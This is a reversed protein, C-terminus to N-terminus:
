EDGEAAEVVTKEEVGKERRFNGRGADFGCVDAFPCYDCKGFYPSPAIIGEAIEECGKRAILLAYKLYANMTREDVLGAKKSASIKDGALAFKMDLTQSYGDEDLGTAGIMEDTFLTKGQLSYVGKEDSTFKDGVPFYYAGGLKEGGKILANGYLYLQLNNGTYFEADKDHIQGTKYDIIRIYEGCKDVRDIKGVIRKEGYATKLKIAGYEAGGGFSAETEAPRFGSGFVQKSVAFAVRRAERGLLSFVVDYRDAAIYRSIIFESKRNELIENVIADSDNRSLAEDKGIAFRARLTRVYDELVSHLFSGLENSRVEGTERESLKLGYKMFCSFPCGFYSELLSASVTDGGAILEGGVPLVTAIERESEFLLKEALTASEPASERAASIFSVEHTANDRAGDLFERVNEMFEKVAPRASSYTVSSYARAFKGDKAAAREFSARSGAEIPAGNKTFMAVFQDIMHGRPAPKGDPAAASRSLYLKETFSALAAGVNERERKNVIKIKPEVICNFRELRALDRDNLVATDSKTFPVDGSLGAAFLIKHEIYKCDKYNGVYVADVLQPLISVECASIGSLLVAKFERATMEARGIIREVSDLVGSIKEFAQETFAADNVAGLSRLKVSIEACADLTGCKEFLAKIASIYDGACRCARVCSAIRARENEFINFDEEDGYRNDANLERNLGSKMIKSTLANRLCFNEFRDSVTKDRQFYPNKELAIFDETRYRGYLLEVYAEALKAVPHLSLPRTDDLFYPIDRDGFVRELVPAYDRVNSIALAIDRYRKGGIVERRIIRAIHEMEDDIDVADYVFVKDTETKPASFCAPDFLLDTITKREAGYKETSNIISFGGIERMLAGKLENTYLETNEGGLAFVTLNEMNKSLSRVVDMGRRTMSSFGVLMASCGKFEDRYLLAPLLSLYSGSDFLGNESLFREYETYLTIIDKIKGALAGKLEPLGRSLDAPTVNASKLQSILEYLTVATGPNHASRGFCNLEAQRASLINRIAMASSERDLVSGKERSFKHIFRSFSIVQVNFTGGGCARVVENELSMTLKDECFAFMRRAPDKGFSAACEGARRMVEAYTKCLYLKLM